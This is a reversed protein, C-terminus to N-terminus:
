MDKHRFVYQEKAVNLMKETWNKSFLKKLMSNENEFFEAKSIYLSAGSEYTEEIDGVYTSTSFMIVPINRFKDDKRIERLCAKGDKYPMNIDLFIVDPPPPSTITSLYHTLKEGDVVTTLKSPIGSEELAERFFDRDDADDDALLIEILKEGPQM